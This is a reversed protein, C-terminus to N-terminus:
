EHRLAEVPNLKSARRAPYLGFLVSTAIGFALAGLLVSPTLVPTISLGGGVRTGAMQGGGTVGSMMAFGFRSVVSALGWGLTIGIGAGLLGILAAEGLFIILVTRDKMGLSKLIGIERTRELVSVIMINMIGIGAVLLSIGAIGALFLEIVSFVSSVTNLMATPSMVTVKDDFLAETAETVSDITTQSSDVLQILIQNVQDTEFIAQATSIPIYVQNDSPGGIGFGGIEKLVAAVHFVYSKIIPKSIPGTTWTLNIVDGVKAFITGNKWPDAIRAGLVITNNTPSLPILGDEALFTSSYIESYQTFNVGVVTVARARSGSAMNVSKSIIAAATSVGEIQNIARTDNVVLYFESTSGGVGFGFGRGATVTLTNLAFGREFQSTMEVRFGEGLSLFAVIAAIGIVVGLITLAARLKRLRIGGWAYSFIDIVKM